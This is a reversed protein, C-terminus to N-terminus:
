GKSKPDSPSGFDGHGSSPLYATTGAFNATYGGTNIAGIATKDQTDPTCTAVGAVNTVASCLAVAGARFTVTRGALPTSGTRLTARLTYDPNTVPAVTLTTTQRLFASVSLRFSTQSTLALVQNTFIAATPNHVITNASTAPQACRPSGSSNTLTFGIIDGAQVNLPPSISAGSAVAPAAAPLVFGANGIGVIRGSSGNPRLVVFRFSARTASPDFARTSFSTIQGSTPAVYTGSTSTKQGYTTNDVCGPTTPTFASGLTLASASGAPVLAVAAVCGIALAAKASRPNSFKALPTM